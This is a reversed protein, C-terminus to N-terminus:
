GDREGRPPEPSTERRAPNGDGHAAAGRGFVREGRPPEPSNKEARPTEPGTRRRAEALSESEERRSLATKRQSVRQRVRESSHKQRGTRALNEEREKTDM